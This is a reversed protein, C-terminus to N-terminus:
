VTFKENQNDKLGLKKNRQSLNKVELVANFVNLKQNIKRIQRGRPLFNLLSLQPKLVM